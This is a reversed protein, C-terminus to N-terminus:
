QFYYRNMYNVAFDERRKELGLTKVALKCFNNLLYNNVKM